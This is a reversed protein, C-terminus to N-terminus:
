RVQFAILSEKMANLTPKWDEIVEIDTVVKFFDKYARGDDDRQIPGAAYGIESTDYFVRSILVITIVHRTSLM